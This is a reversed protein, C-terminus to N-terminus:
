GIGVKFLRHMWVIITLHTSFRELTYSIQVIASPWCLRVPCFSQPVDWICHCSINETQTQRVVIELLALLQHHGKVPHHLIHDCLGPKPQVGPALNSGWDHDGGVIHPHLPVDELVRFRAVFESGMVTTKFPM